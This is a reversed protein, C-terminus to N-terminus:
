LRVSESGPDGWERARPGRAKGLLLDVERRDRVGNRQRGDVLVARGPDVITGALYFFVEPERRSWVEYGTWVGGGENGARRPTVEIQRDSPLLTLEPADPPKVPRGTTVVSWDSAGAENVTRVRVEYEPDDWGRDGPGLLGTVLASPSMSVARRRDGDYFEGYGERLARWEVEYAIELGRGDDAPLDWTVQLTRDGHPHAEVNRPETPPVPPEPVGQVDQSWSGAGPGGGIDTLSGNFARVRVSYTEGNTLSLLAAHRPLAGVFISRFGSGANGYQVEYGTVASFGDSAPPNWEADLRGDRPTLRLGLPASPVTAPVGSGLSSWPGVGPGDGGDEGSSNRGRVSVLYEAGNILGTVSATNSATDTTSVTSWIRDSVDAYRIDYQTIPSNGDWQIRWSIRLEGDLSQMRPDLVLARPYSSPRGRVPASWPGVGRGDGLNVTSSTVARVRM